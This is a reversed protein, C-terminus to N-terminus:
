KASVNVNSQSAKLMEIAQKDKIQLQAKLEDVQRTLYGIQEEKNALTLEKMKAANTLEQIKDNFQREVTEKTANAVTKVAINKDEAADSITKKMTELEANSILRQQYGAAIKTAADLNADRVLLSNNYLLRENEKQIRLKEEELNLKERAIGEQVDAKMKTLSEEFTAVQTIYASELAQLQESLELEKKKLDLSFDNDLDLVQGKFETLETLLKLENEKLKKAQEALVLRREEISKVRSESVAKKAVAM